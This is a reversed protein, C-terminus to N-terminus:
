HEPADAAADDRPARLSRETGGATREAEAGTSGVASVAEEGIERISRLARTSESRAGSVLRGADRELGEGIERLGRLGGAEGAVEQEIESMAGRVDRTIEATYRRAIRYWRGAQRAIEPFHQPGVVILAIAFVLVAEAAGVGLFSPGM